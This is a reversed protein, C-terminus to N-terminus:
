KMDLYKALNGKKVVHIDKLGLWKAMANLEASLAAATQRPDAMDEVHSANVLLTGAERDAKLCVRGAFSEGLLFPLV